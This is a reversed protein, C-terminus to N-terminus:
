HQGRADKVEALQGDTGHLRLQPGAADRDASTPTDGRSADYVICLFHEPKAWALREPDVCGSCPCALPSFCIGAAVAVLRRTRTTSSSSFTDWRTEDARRKSPNSVSVASLPLEASAATASDSGSRMTSSTIIGPRSPSPTSCLRRAAPECTGTM